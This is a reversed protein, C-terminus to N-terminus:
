RMKLFVYSLPLLVLMFFIWGLHPHIKLMFESGFSYTLYVLTAVRLLNALYVAVSLVILVKAVSRWDKWRFAINYSLVMSTVLLLSYWGFCALDIRLFAHNEGLVEIIRFDSIRVGVGVSELLKVVPVAVAYHGYLYPIYMSVRAPLMFLLAFLTLFILTFYVGFRGIESYKSGSGYSMLSIGFLIVMTDFTQIESELFSNAIIDLAITGGGVVILFWSRRVEPIEKESNKALLFIIVLSMLLFVAGLYATGYALEISAGVILAALAVIGKESSLKM